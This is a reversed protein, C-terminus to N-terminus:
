NRQNHLDILTKNEIGSIIITAEVCPFKENEPVSEYLNEISLTSNSIM